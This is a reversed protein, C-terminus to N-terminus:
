GSRILLSRNCQDCFVELDIDNRWDFAEIRRTLKGDRFREGGGGTKTVGAGEEEEEEGKGEACFPTWGGLDREEDVFLGMAPSTYDQLEKNPAEGIGRWAARLSSHQLQVRQGCAGYSGLLM